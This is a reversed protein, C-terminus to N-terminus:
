IAEMSHCRDVQPVKSFLRHQHVVPKLLHSHTLLM